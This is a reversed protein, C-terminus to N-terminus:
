MHLFAVYWIKQAKGLREPWNKRVLEHNAGIGGSAIIINQVKYEFQDTVTRNTAVGREKDDTELINGKVGIVNNDETILETVQHRFKM